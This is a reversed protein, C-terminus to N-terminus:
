VADLIRLFAAQEAELGHLVAQNRAAQCLGAREGAALRAARIASRSLAGLEYPPRFCTQGDLCFGRNGVCDPCVVVAGAAMAELAPLFFGEHQHPITVAVEARSLLHLFEARPVMGTLLRAPVGERALWAQVATALTPNKAGAILVGIDRHDACPIQDLDIGNPIVHVPGNVEGTATIATAVEESVCIRIAPRALYPRRPDGVDGHRIHQILNIVPRPAPNPVAEWDLGALFLVGGDAPRWEPEPPPKVNAWPNGPVGLSGPTLHIRPVFRRSAGAHQFYHWVKLHGGTLGRFDRRFLLVRRPDDKM